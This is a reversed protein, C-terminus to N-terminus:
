LAFILFIILLVVFIAVGGIIIAMVYNRRLFNLVRDPTSTVDEVIFLDNETSTSLLIAESPIAPRNDMEYLLCNNIPDKYKIPKSNENHRATANPLPPLIKCMHQNSEVKQFTLNTLGVGNESLIDYTGPHGAPRVKFRASANSTGIVFKCSTNAGNIYQGSRFHKFMYMKDAELTFPSIGFAAPSAM